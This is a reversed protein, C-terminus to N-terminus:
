PISAEQPGPPKLGGYGWAHRLLRSLIRTTFPSKLPATIYDSIRRLVIVKGLSILHDSQGVHGLCSAGTRDSAGRPHPLHLDDTSLDSRLLFM